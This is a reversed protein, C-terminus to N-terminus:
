ADPLSGGLYYFKHPNNYRFLALAKLDATSFAHSFNTLSEHRYKVKPSYSVTPKISAGLSSAIIDAINDIALKSLTRQSVSFANVISSAAFITSLTYALLFNQCYTSNHKSNYRSLTSGSM